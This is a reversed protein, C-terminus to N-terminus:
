RSHNLVGSRFTNRGVMRAGRTEDSRGLHRVKGLTASM